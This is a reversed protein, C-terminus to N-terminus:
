FIPLGMTKRQGDQLLRRVRLDLFRPRKSANRAANEIRGNRQSSQSQRKKRLDGLGFDGAIVEEDAPGKV